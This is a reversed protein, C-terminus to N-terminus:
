CGALETLATLDAKSALETKNAKKALETLDAKSALETKNAKKALKTLDATEAIKALDDQTVRYLKRNLAFAFLVVTLIVVEVLFLVAAWATMFELVSAYVGVLALIMFILSIGAATVRIIRVRRHLNGLKAKADGGAAGPVADQNRYLLAATASIVLVGLSPWFYVWWINIKMDPSAFGLAILATIAFGTQLVDYVSNKSAMEKSDPTKRTANSIWFYLIFWIVFLLRTGQDLTKLGDIHDPNWTYEPWQRVFYAPLAVLFAGSTGSLLMDSLKIHMYVPIRGIMWGKNFPNLGKLITGIDSGLQSMKKGISQSTASEPTSTERPPSNTTM